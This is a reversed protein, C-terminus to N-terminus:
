PPMVPRTTLETSRAQSAIQADHRVLLDGKVAGSTSPAGDVDLVQASAASATLAPSLALGAAPSRPTRAEFRLYQLSDFYYDVVIPTTFVHQASGQIIDASIALLSLPM